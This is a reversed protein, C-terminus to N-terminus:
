SSGRRRPDPVAGRHQLVSPGELHRVHEPARAEHPGRTSRGGARRPPRAACSRPTTPASGQPQVDEAEVEQVRQGRRQEPPDASLAVDGPVDRRAGGGAPGGCRRWRAGSPRPRRLADRIPPLPARVAMLGTARVGGGNPFGGSLVAAGRRVRRARRGALRNRPAVVAKAKAASAFGDGSPARRPPPSGYGGLPSAQDPVTPVARGAVPPPPLPSRSWLAGPGTWRARQRCHAGGDVLRRQEVVPAKAVQEDPM